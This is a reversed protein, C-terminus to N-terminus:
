GGKKRRSTFGRQEDTYNGFLRRARNDCGDWLMIIKRMYLTDNQFHHEGLIKVEVSQNEVAKYLEDCYDINM